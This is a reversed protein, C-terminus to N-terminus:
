PTTVAELIKDIQYRYKEALSLLEQVTAFQAHVAETRAAPERDIDGALSIAGVFFLWYAMSELQEKNLWLVGDFQNVYLYDRVAPDDLMKRLVAHRPKNPSAALEPLYRLAIGVLEADLQALWDERGLGVFAEAVAQTMMWDDTWSRRRKGGPTRSGESKPALAHGFPQLIAWAVPVRWFAANEGEANVSEMLYTQIAEGPNASEISADFQRLLDLWRGIRELITDAYIPTGARESLIAIFARMDADFRTWATEYAAADSGGFAEFTERNVCKRFADLIPGLVSATHLQIIDPVGGDGIEGAIRAWSGTSDFVERFDLLVRYQYGALETEFGSEALQQGSRLYELGTQHDRFLYYCGTDSRIGLAEALTKRVLQSEGNGGVNVPTSLRICGKTSASCNNYLVLARDGADRNSYAFVNENVSGDDMLVDYLAFHEVGTFLRRRRMLPFVEVEHRRLFEADVDEDRYARRYEMGYKEALGEVQGHAFMPLGPMTAMLVAVGFYKDGNGFQGAATEEDPNSMFNVFRQLIEPTFELVNTITARYDANEEDKLMNMFASNYVRHMGLTRVFYGEMLWFAEALLLTGPAETAARDVVERWFEAPMHRDFQARSMGHEARSPIAGAEGPKPFWLRQFHRKTLTMAADFRVIPFLNAVHLITETVAERVEPLLYNLQATDNWPTHTGDNGHYVYRTREGQRDELKFAVAADTQDWYHDELFAAVRDDQSLDEGTYSYGPFPPSERQVFWDPHELTWKSLIGLHNPVMDCALRIGRKEARDRLHVLAEEGGLDAAIVYDYISYASAAAEPNGMRQKIRESAPSREWVGIIWLANFGWSALRDLEEDPVEDLRHIPRRHRKSLQDLWVYASKAILVVDTMWGIDVSFREPEAYLSDGDVSPDPGFQPVLAPGAGPGRYTTEETLVGEALYLQEALPEPLLGLWRARVHTLQGELADPAADMPDRLCEFLPKGLVEVPPQTRFFNELSQVLGAYSTHARLVADDFLECLPKLAANANALFLLVLERIVVEDDLELGPIPFRALFAARLEDIVTRDRRAQAFAIARRLADPNQERCYFDMVVRQAELILGAAFLEGARVPQGSQEASSRATEMRYALYRAKEIREAATPPSSCTVTDTLGYRTAAMESVLFGLPLCLSVADDGDTMVSLEGSPRDAQGETLVGDEDWWVIGRLVATALSGLWCLADWCAM